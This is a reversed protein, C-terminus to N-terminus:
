MFSYFSNEPTCFVYQVTCSTICFYEIGTLFQALQRFHVQNLLELSLQTSVRLAMFM